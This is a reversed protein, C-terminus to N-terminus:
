SAGALLGPEFRDLSAELTMAARGAGKLRAEAARSAEDASGHVHRLRLVPKGSGKTVLHVQGSGVEAWEAEVSGYVERTDLSWSWETLDPGTLGPPTLPDGAATVGDGRRQMILAGGGAKATADLTAGLRSLFHLNSEATQALYAWSAGAISSSVMPRLGAEGAITSVIDKLTKGEWARTRPSRIDGKLDAATATIRMSQPPSSGSVADVKFRGLDALAQGRYGLAVQLEAEMDPLAVRGDRDDIEIELRDAKEGDEDTVSLSLLRDGIRGSVDEGAATIRFAPTTM